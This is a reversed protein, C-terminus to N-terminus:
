PRGRSRNLRCATVADRARLARGAVAAGFAAGGSRYTVSFGPRRGPPPLDAARAGVARCTPTAGNGTFLLGSVPFRLRRDNGAAAPQNRTRIFSRRGPRRGHLPRLAPVWLWLGHNHTGAVPDGRRMARRLRAYVRKQQRPTGRAPVVRPPNTPNTEGFHAAVASASRRVIDFLGDRERSANRRGPNADNSRAGSDLPPRLASLREPAHSAGTPCAM